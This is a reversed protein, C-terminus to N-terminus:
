YDFAKYRRGEIYVGGLSESSARVVRVTELSRPKWPGPNGPNLTELTWPVPGAWPPPWTNFVYKGSRSVRPCAARRTRDRPTLRPPPPPPPTACCMCLPIDRSPLHPPPNTTHSPPFTSSTHSPFSTHSSSPTMVAGGCM